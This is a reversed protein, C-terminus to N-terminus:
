DSQIKIAKKLEALSLEVQDGLEDELEIRGFRVENFIETIERVTSQILNASPHSQFHGGVEAAFERHTQSPQRRLQVSELLDLMEQYFATTRNLGRGEMMWAGISPSLLSVAGAVFRRLRGVKRTAQQNSQQNKRVARIWIAFMLLGVLGLM